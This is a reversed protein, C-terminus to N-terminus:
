RDPSPTAPPRSSRTFVSAPAAGEKESAGVDIRAAGSTCRSRGLEHMLVRRFDHRALPYIMVACFDYASSGRDLWRNKRAAHRDDIISRSRRENTQVV